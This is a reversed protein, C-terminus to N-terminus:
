SDGTHVLTDSALDRAGSGARPISGTARAFRPCNPRGKEASIQSHLTRQEFLPHVSLKRLAELIQEVNPRDVPAQELCRQTLEWLHDTLGTHSPREPRKGSVISAIVAPTASGVFPAKGTFVQVLPYPQQRPVLQDDGVEIIVMGFSFIDSEKSAPQEGM